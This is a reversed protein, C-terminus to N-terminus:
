PSAPQRAPSRAPSRSYTRAVNGNLDYGTKHATNVASAIGNALTDLQSLTAQVGQDRAQITGALDGGSLATSIDAGQSYVHLSGTDDPVTTLAVTKTGAVLPSGNSTSVNITGNSNNTVVVGAVAALQQVLQTRQDVLSSAGQQDSSLQGIQQNMGAIQSALSNIQQM